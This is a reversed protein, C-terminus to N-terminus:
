RDSLHSNLTAAYAEAEAQTAFTALPECGWKSRDVIQYAYFFDVTRERQGDNISAWSGYHDNVWQAFAERDNPGFITPLEHAYVHAAIYRDPGQPECVYIASATTPVCYIHGPVPRQITPM